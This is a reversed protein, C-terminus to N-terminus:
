RAAEGYALPAVFAAREATLGHRAALHQVRLATASLAISRYDIGCFSATEINAGAAGALADPTEIKLTM